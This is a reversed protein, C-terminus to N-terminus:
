LFGELSKRKTMPEPGPALAVAGCGHTPLGRTPNHSSAALRRGWPATGDGISSLTPGPRRKTASRVPYTFAELRGTRRGASERLSTLRPTIHPVPTGQPRGVIVARGLVRGPRARPEGVLAMDTTVVDTRLGRGFKIPPAISVWRLRFHYDM